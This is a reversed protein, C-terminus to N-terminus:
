DLVPYRNTREREEYWQHEGRGAYWRAFGYGIDMADLTGIYKFAGQRGVTRLNPIADLATIIQCLPGQFGMRMVPYSKPLRIIRHQKVAFDRYGMEALGNRAAKALAEDSLIAMARRDNSMIECCVVSGNPTMGPDFSEQESVRHFVIDPDPVFIWSERLLSPKDIHLFVLVLDSLAVVREGLEAITEPLYDKLLSTLLRLPLTSVVFDDRGGDFAVDPAGDARTCHITSVRENQIELRSVSHGLLFRGHGRAKNEISEWLRGLGGRPYRFTLAEFDSTRRLKLLRGLVESISPTQVRGRSLEVDLERPDGWLKLAIPKFLVQYLERGLRGVLDDEFTDPSPRRILGTLRARGYGVLMRAFAALGFVRALSFPSPPYALFHSKMYISGVKERTLWDEAPLLREVRHMLESD